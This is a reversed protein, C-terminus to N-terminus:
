SKFGKPKINPNSKVNQVSNPSVKALLGDLDIATTPKKRGKQNFKLLKILFIFIKTKTQSKQIKSLFEPKNEALHAIIAAIIIFPFFLLFYALLLLIILIYFPPLSSFYKSIFGILFVVALAIVFIGMIIQLAIKFTELFGFIDRGGVLNIWSKKFEKDKKAKDVMMYSYGWLCAVACIIVALIKKGITSNEGNWLLSFSVVGVTVAIVLPLIGKKYLFYVFKGLLIFVKICIRFIGATEGIVEKGYDRNDDNM